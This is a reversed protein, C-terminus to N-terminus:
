AEIEEKGLAGHFTLKGKSKKVTASRNAKGPTVESITVESAGTAELTSKLMEAIDENEGITFGATPKMARVEAGVSGEAKNWLPRAVGDEHIVNIKDSIDNLPGYVADALEDQTENFRDENDLVTDDEGFAVKKATGDPNFLTTPTDDKKKENGAAALDAMRAIFDDKWQQNLPHWVGLIKTKDAGIITTDTIWNKMYETARREADPVDQAVVLQSKVTIKEVGAETTTKEEYQVKFFHGKVFPDYIADFRIKSIDYEYEDVRGALFETLQAEVDGYTIADHVFQESFSKWKGLSDQVGYKIKSLFWM